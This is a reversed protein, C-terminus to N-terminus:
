KISYHPEATVQNRPKLQLGINTKRPPVRVEEDRKAQLILVSGTLRALFKANIGISQAAANPERYVINENMNKTYENHMEIADSFDPEDEM